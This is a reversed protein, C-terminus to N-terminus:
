TGEGGIEADRLSELTDSMTGGTSRSSSSIAERIQNHWYLYAREAEVSALARTAVADKVIDYAERLLSKMENVIDEFRSAADVDIALEEDTEMEGADYFDHDVPAEDLLMSNNVAYELLKQKM